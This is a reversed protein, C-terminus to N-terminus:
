TTTGPGVIAQRLREAVTDFAFHERAEDPIVQREREWTAPDSRELVRAVAHGVDPVVWSEPHVAKAGGVPTLAPWDRVVPIAGSLAGEVLGAHFSERRSCSLIVGIRRLVTPIDDCWGTIEVRGALGPDDLATRFADVYAAEAQSVPTAFDDGVLVLRYEGPLQRLIELAWLPDKVRRGWKIMGLTTRADAEKETGFRSPDIALPITSVAPAGESARLLRSVVRRLPESVVIIHDGPRWQVLHLWPDLADLSHVRVVLRTNEPRCRSAMVTVRDAWDSFIGDADGLSDELDHWLAVDSEEVQPLEAERRLTALTELVHPDLLRERLSGHREALDILNVQAVESLAEVVPAHFSGYAGPLVVVHPRRGHAPPPPESTAEASAAPALLDRFTVSDHLPRLHDEPSLILPTHAVEAHLERHFLLAMADHLRGLALPVDGHSYADDAGRAASSAADVAHEQAAGPARDLWLDAVLRLSSLGSLSRHPEPWDPADLLERVLLAAARHGVLSPLDRALAAASDVPALVPPVAAVAASFDSSSVILGRAFEERRDEGRRLARQLRALERNVGSRVDDLVRSITGLHEWLRHSETSTIIPTGRALDPALTLIRDTEDDCSLILDAGAAQRAFWADTHLVTWWHPDVGRRHARTSMGLRAVSSRIRGPHGPAQRGLTRTPYPRHLPGSGGRGGAVSFTFMGHPLHRISEPLDESRRALFLVNRQPRIEKSTRAPRVGSTDCLHARL